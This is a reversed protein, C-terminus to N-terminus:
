LSSSQVTMEIKMYYFADKFVICIAYCYFTFKNNTYIDILQSEQM